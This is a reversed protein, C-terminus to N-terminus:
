VIRIVSLFNEQSKRMFDITQDKIEMNNLLNAIKELTQESLAVQKGDDLRFVIKGNIESDLKNTIRMELIIPDVTFCKSSATHIYHEILQNTIKIETHKRIISAIKTDSINEYLEVKTNFAEEQIDIYNKVEELSDFKQDLKIGDVFCDQQENVIIEKDYYSTVSVVKGYTGKDTYLKSLFNNLQM